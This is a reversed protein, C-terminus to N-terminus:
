IELFSSVLPRYTDRLCLSMSTKRGWRHSLSVIQDYLNLYPFSEQFWKGRVNLLGLNGLMPSITFANITITVTVTVTITVSNTCHDITLGNRCFINM